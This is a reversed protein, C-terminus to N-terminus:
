PVSLSGGDSSISMNESISTYDDSDWQSFKLPNNRIRSMQQSLSVEKTEGNVDWTVYATVRLTSPDKRTESSSTTTAANSDRDRYMNEITFWMTYVVMEDDEFLSATTTGLEVSLTSPTTTAVTGLLYFEQGVAGNEGDPSFNYFTPWDSEAYARAMSLTEQLIAYGKQAQTSTQGSRLSVVMATVASGIVVATVSVAVLIEFLSQGREESQM